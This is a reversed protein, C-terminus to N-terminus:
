LLTPFSSSADDQKEPSRSPLPASRDRKSDQPVAPPSMSNGGESLGCSDLVSHSQLTGTTRSHWAWGARWAQQLLLLDFVSLFPHQAQIQQMDLICAHTYSQDRRLPTWGPLRLITGKRGQREWARIELAARSRHVLSRCEGILLRLASSQYWCCLRSFRLRRTANPSSSASTDVPTHFETAESLNSRFAQGRV